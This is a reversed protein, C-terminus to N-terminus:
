LHRGSKQMLAAGLGTCSTDATLAFPKNFDPFGLVPSDILLKKLTDFAQRQELSWIFQAEKSLLRSLPHAISVFGKMFPRYFEALGLFAKVQKVNQPTPFDM